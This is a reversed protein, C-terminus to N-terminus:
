GKAEVQRPPGTALRIGKSAVLAGVWGMLALALMKIVVALATQALAAALQPQATLTGPPLAKGGDLGKVAPQARLPQVQFMQADVTVYLHYAWAFVLILLALGGAFVVLGVVQNIAHSPQNV